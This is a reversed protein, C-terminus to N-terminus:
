SLKPVQNEITWIMHASYKALVDARQHARLISDSMTLRDWLHEDTKQPVMDAFSLKTFDIGLPGSDEKAFCKHVGIDQLYSPCITCVHDSVGDTLPWYRSAALRVNENIPKNVVDDRKFEFKWDHQYSSSHSLFPNVNEPEAILLELIYEIRRYDQVVPQKTFATLGAKYQFYVRDRHFYLRHPEAVAQLVSCLNMAEKPQNNFTSEVFEDYTCTADYVKKVYTLLVETKDKELAVPVQPFLRDVYCTSCTVSSGAIPPQTQCGCKPCLLKGNTDIDFKDRLSKSFRTTNKYTSRAPKVRLSDM